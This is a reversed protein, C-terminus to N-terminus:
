VEKQYFAESTYCGAPPTEAELLPKRVNVYTKPDFLDM